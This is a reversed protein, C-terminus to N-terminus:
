RSAKHTRLFDALHTSGIHDYGECHLREHEIFSAPPPFDASFWIDCRLTELDLEACAEPSMLFGAYKVCRDRMEHHPVHHEYVTLKPWGEVKQHGIVTCGHVVCLLIAGVFGLMVFAFDAAFKRDWKRGLDDALRDIELSAEKLANPAGVETQRIRWHPLSPPQQQSM